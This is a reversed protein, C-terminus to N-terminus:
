SPEPAAPPDLSVSGDAGHEHTTHAVTLHAIENHLRTIERRQKNELRTLRRALKTKGSM